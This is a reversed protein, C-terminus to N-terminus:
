ATANPHSGPVRPREELGELGEMDYRAIWKYVTNRSIGYMSSLETITYERQLWSGILEVRQDMACTGKWPM